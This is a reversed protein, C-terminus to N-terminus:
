EMVIVGLKYHFGLVVFGYFIRPISIFLLFL